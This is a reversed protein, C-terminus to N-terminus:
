EGGSGMAWGEAPVGEAGGLQRLISRYDKVM